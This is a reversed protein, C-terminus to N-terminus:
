TIMIVWCRWEPFAHPTRGRRVPRLPVFKNMVVDGHLLELGNEVPTRVVPVLCGGPTAEDFPVTMLAVLLVVRRATRAAPATAAPVAPRAASGAWAAEVAVTM